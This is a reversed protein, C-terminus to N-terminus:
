LAALVDRVQHRAFTRLEVRYNPHMYSALMDDLEVRGLCVKPSSYRRWTGGNTRYRIFLLYIM